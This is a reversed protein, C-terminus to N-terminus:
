SLREYYDLLFKIAHWYSGGWEKDAFEKFRKFQDEPMGSVKFYILKQGNVVKEEIGTM